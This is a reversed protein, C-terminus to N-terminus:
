NRPRGLTEGISKLLAEGEKGNKALWSDVVPQAAAVWPKLQEPTLVEVQMGQKRLVDVAQDDSAKMTKAVWDSSKQVAERLVKQEEPTLKDYVSKRFVVFYPIMNHNEVTLHKLVDWMKRSVVSSLGTHTGDVTGQQLGLYVESGSMFTPSAGFAKLLQAGIDNNTRVKMGKFDEPKLLPRKTTGFIGFGYNFYGLGVANFKTLGDLLRQGVETKLVKQAEDHDRVVYPVDFIGAIPMVGTWYLTPSLGADVTGSTIERPFTSDKTLQGAPYLEIRVSGKTGELVDKALMRAGEHFEHTVPLEYGFRIVTQSQAAGPLALLSLGLLANRLMAIRM